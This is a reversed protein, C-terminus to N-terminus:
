KRPGRKNRADENRMVKDADDRMSRVPFEHGTRWWSNCAEREMKLEHLFNEREMPYISDLSM